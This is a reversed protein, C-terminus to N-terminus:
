KMKSQIDKIKQLHAKLTPLTKSAFAKIDADSDDANDEFLQVASEHASVMAAVYEKDFEAGSLENLEDMTEKHSSGMDTPLVVKKKAALSKLENNAKTHDTIMMQAFSKVDANQSKKLALQAMEVEAMGDRAATTWFSDQLVATNSNVNTVANSNAKNSNSSNTNRSNVTTQNRNSETSNNGCALGFITLFGIFIGIIFQRRM